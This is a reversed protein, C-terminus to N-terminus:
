QLKEAQLIEPAVMGCSMVVKMAEEITMQAPYVRSEEVVLVFGTTPNPITPVFCSLYRKGSATVVENTVYALTFAGPRPFDVFVAQRFSPERGKHSFVEVVQRASFYVSKVVPIRGLFRDWQALLRRGFVNTALLGAGYTALLGVIMGLGPLYYERGFFLNQGGRIYSALIGDAFNFLFRLVFLTIGFPVVVLLGAGMTHRLHGLLGSAPRHATKPPRPEM